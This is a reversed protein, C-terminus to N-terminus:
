EGLLETKGQSISNLNAKVQKFIDKYPMGLEMSDKLTQAATLEATSLISLQITTLLERIESAKPDIILISKYVANTILCFYRDANKSGNNKAYEIFKKIEDTLLTRSNKGSSRALQFALKEREKSQLYLKSRLRLFEDVLLKHGERSKRGGIFPLTKLFGGETLEFCRYKKGRKTYNSLRYEARSITMDDILSDIIQLVKNHPRELVDSITRSDVSAKNSRIVLHNLNKPKADSEVIQIPSQLSQSPRTEPLQNTTM